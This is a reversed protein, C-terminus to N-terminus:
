RNKRNGYFVPCGDPMARDCVGIIEAAPWTM